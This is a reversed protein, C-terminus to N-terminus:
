SQGTAEEEEESNLVDTQYELDQEELNLTHDKFRYSLGTPVGPLTRSRDPGQSDDCHRQRHRKKQQAPSSDQFHQRTRKNTDLDTSQEIQLSAKVIQEGSPPTTYQTSEPSQSGEGLELKSTKNDIQTSATPPKHVIESSM